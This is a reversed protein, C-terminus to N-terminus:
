AFSVLPLGRKNFVFFPCFDVKYSWLNIMNIGYAGVYALIVLKTTKKLFFDQWILNHAGVMCIPYARPMMENWLEMAFSTTPRM